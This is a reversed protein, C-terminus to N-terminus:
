YRRASLYGIVIAGALLAISLANLWLGALFALLVALLGFYGARRYAGFVAFLTLVIPGYLFIGQITTEYQPEVAILLAQLKDAVFTGPDFGFHIWLGSLFGFGIITQKLFLKKTNRVRVM